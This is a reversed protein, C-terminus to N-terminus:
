GASLHVERYVRGRASTLLTVDVREGSRALQQTSQWTQGPRLTLAQSRLVRGQISVRLRYRIEDREHSRVGLRVTSSSPGPLAWLQTFATENDHRRQGLVGITVAAIVALAAFVFMAAPGISLSQRNRRRPAVEHAGELRAMALLGSATVLGLAVAWSETTLRIHAASLVLGIIVAIALSLGPVLLLQETGSIQSRNLIARTLVFGPLICLILGSPVRIPAPGLLIGVEAAALASALLALTRERAV